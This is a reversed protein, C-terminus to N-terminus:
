TTNLTPITVLHSASQNMVVGETIACLGSWQTFHFYCQIDTVDSQVEKNLLVLNRGSYRHMDAILSVCSDGVIKNPKRNHLDLYLVWTVTM